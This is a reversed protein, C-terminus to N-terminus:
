KGGNRDKIRAIIPCDEDDNSSICAELMQGLDQKLRNLEELSEEIEALKEKVLKQAQPKNVSETQDINMLERIEDLSFNMRQARKIFRVQEIDKDHYERRGGPSKGVPALLGIKEYYRLTHQSVQLLDAVQGITRM